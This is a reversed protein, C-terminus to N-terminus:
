ALKQMHAMLLQAYREPQEIDPFHGCGDMRIIEAHPVCDLLSEPATQRHSKDLSGWLMTCPIEVGAVAAPTEKILGQVVGALCFCGGAAFARGAIERFPASDTNKPLATRYWAHALKKRFLWALLQGLVPVRLPWPIMRSTWAHMARLSPTQALFLSNVRGPAICAARIAYLGNACSFALTASPIDLADMVQLVAQAGQDLSHRYAADPLSFGFGPMDFCVVRFDDKLLQILRGYHEIVNPGDPVLLVCPKGTATDFTRVLGHPTAVYRLSAASVAAPARGFLARRALYGDLRSALM